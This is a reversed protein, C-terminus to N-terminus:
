HVFDALTVFIIQQYDRLQSMDGLTKELKALIADILGIKLFFSKLFM